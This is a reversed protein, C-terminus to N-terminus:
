QSADDKLTEDLSIGDELSIGSDSASKTNTRSSRSRKVVWSGAAWLGYFPALAMMVPIVVCAAAGSAAFVLIGVEIYLFIVLSRILRENVGHKHSRRAKFDRYHNMCRDAYWVTGITALTFVVLSGLTLGLMLGLPDINDEM